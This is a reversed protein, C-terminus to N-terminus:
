RSRYIEKHNAIGKKVANVRDVYSSADKFRPFGSSAEHCFKDASVRVTSLRRCGKISQLANGLGAVLFAGIVDALTKGQTVPAAMM